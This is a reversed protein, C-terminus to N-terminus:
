EGNETNLTLAAAEVTVTETTAGVELQVTTTTITAVHVEVNKQSLTKFGQKAGTLTYNGIPLQLFAFDGQADSTAKRTTGTAPDTLTLSCGPIAAGTQDTVTGHIDGTTKQAFSLPLFMLSFVAFVGVLRLLRSGM